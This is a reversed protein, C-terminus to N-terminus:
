PHRGAALLREAGTELDRAVLVTDNDRRSVFVMTKGDPSLAPRVAGGFGSTLPFTEGTLRDFRTIQWLGRSLDPIYNFRSARASFYIFRGDRSAVPGSANNLDDSSTLKIGGGGNRHYM